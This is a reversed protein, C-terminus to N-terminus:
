AHGAQLTRWARISVPSLVFGVALALYQLPILRARGEARFELAADIFEPEIRVDANRLSRAIAALPGLVAWLRGTDAPDGLGLRLHLRLERLHAAALADQLLRYLRRRFAAQRLAAFVNGRARKKGAKPRAKGARPKAQTTEDTEGSGPIPVQLRVAGFLWRIGIEGRLPELGEARFAVDIPLALLVLLAAVAAVVLITATV